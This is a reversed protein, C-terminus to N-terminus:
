NWKLSGTTKKKTGFIQNYLEETADVRDEDSKFKENGSLFDKEVQIQAKTRRSSTKPKETKKEAGVKGNAEVVESAKGALEASAENLVNFFVQERSENNVDDLSKDVIKEESNDVEALSVLVNKELVKTSNDVKLDLPKIKSNKLDLWAETAEKNYEYCGNVLKYVKVDLDKIKLTATKGIVKPKSSNVTLLECKNKSNDLILISESLVNSHSSNKYVESIKEVSIGAALNNPLILDMIVYLNQFHTNDYKIWTNRKFFDKGIYAVQKGDTTDGWLHYTDKLNSGYAKTIEECRKTTMYGYELYQELTLDPVILNLQRNLFSNINTNSLMGLMLLDRLTDIQNWKKEIKVFVSIDKTDTSYKKNGKLDVIVKRQVLILSSKMMKEAQEVSLADRVESSNLFDTLTLLVLYEM